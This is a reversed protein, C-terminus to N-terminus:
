IIYKAEFCQKMVNECKHTERKKGKENAHDWHPSVCDHVYDPGYRMALHKELHKPGRLNMNDMSIEVSPFIINSKGSSKHKSTDGNDFVDIFPYKWSWKGANPSDCRFIKWGGWFKETCYPTKILSRATSSNSRAIIIDIDDDWPIFQKLRKYGLATGFAISYDISASRFTKDLYLMIGKFNQELKKDQWFNPYLKCFSVGTSPTIKKKKVWCGTEMDLEHNPQAVSDDHYHRATIKNGNAPCWTKIGEIYCTQLPFINSLPHQLYNYNRDIMKGNGNGADVLVWVDVHLMSKREILRANPAVFRVGANKYYRRGSKQYPKIFPCRWDPQVVIQFPNNPRANYEDMFSEIKSTDRAWIMMDIDTDWQKLANGRHRSEILTGAWNWTSIKINNALSVWEKLLRKLTTEINVRSVSCKAAKCKKHCNTGWRKFAEKSVEKYPSVTQNKYTTTNHNKQLGKFHSAVYDPPPQKRCKKNEDFRKYSLPLHSKASKVGKPRIKTGWITSNMEYPMVILDKVPMYSTLAGSKTASRYMEDIPYWVPSLTPLVKRAGNLTILYGVTGYPSYSKIVFKNGSLRYNPLGRLNKMSDHHLFPAFTGDRPLNERFQKYLMEFDPYLVVDDEFVIVEELKNEVVHELVRIHSIACGLAGRRVKSYSQANLYKDFKKEEIELTTSAPWIQANLYPNAKILTQVHQLRVPDNKLTIFYVPPFSSTSNGEMSRAVVSPVSPVSPMSPVSPVSPVTDPRLARKEVPRAKYPESWLPLITYRFCCGLLIFFAITFFRM